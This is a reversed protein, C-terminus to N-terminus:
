LSHTLEEFKKKNLGVGPKADIRKAVAGKELYLVTPYFEVSYKDCLKENDDIKVFESKSNKRSCEEFVPLFMQSFPCWSAYFLVLVKDANKFRDFEAESQIEKM